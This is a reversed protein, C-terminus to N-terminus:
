SQLFLNQTIKKEIISSAKACKRFNRSYIHTLKMMQFLSFILKRLLCNQSFELMIPSFSTDLVYWTIRPSFYIWKTVIGNGKPYFVPERAHTILGKTVRTQERQSRVERKPLMLSGTVRWHKWTKNKRQEKKYLVRRQKEEREEPLWNEKCVWDKM